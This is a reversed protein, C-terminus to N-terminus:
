CGAAFLALYYFFDDNNIVGNPVGYGPQGAVAGATMDAVAANGAAFQALYYFFDENNLAGDPVGYGPQGAVAGTTLDPTCPDGITFNSVSADFGTNSQGDRVVLRLRAQATSAMGAPVTWTFSSDDATNAAIVTPWTQGGDTSLLIDVGTTGNDDDTSWVIEVQEGQDVQGGDRLTRLYATPNAGGPAAPVHMAICHFVGALQAIAEGSLPRVTHGPLLSQWTALAQANYQAAVSNSYSPVVLLNNCLLVNTFTYHTGGSSVAPIRTVTYGNGAMLAATTDCIVDQASGPQLPWDSIVVARDGYIQMWMDIHQTLDVSTPFPNTLTTDVNQFQDWYGVIQAETLTPNENSILRTAYSDGLGSLHYNGGGHILPIDYIAHNKLVAFDEPMVNDLPRPRNYVHDIIARVQHGSPGEYIYRPGYDRIWVSNLQFQRFVVRSMNAGSAALSNSASNQAAAGSVYIYARAEGDTTVWKALNAIHSTFGTWSFCIGDMPEYEGVCRVPGAPAGVFEPVELPSSRLFAAEAPTLNRPLTPGDAPIFAAPDGAGLTAPQAAAAAALGAVLVLSTLCRRIHMTSGQIFLDV